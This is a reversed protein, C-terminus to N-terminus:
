QFHHDVMEGDSPFRGEECFLNECAKGEIQRKIIIQHDMVVWFKPVILERLTTISERNM